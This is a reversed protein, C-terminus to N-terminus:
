MGGQEGRGCVTSRLRCNGQVTIKFILRAYASKAGTAFSTDVYSGVSSSVAAAAHTATADEVWNRNDNSRQVFIALTPVSASPNETVAHVVMSEASGLLANYQPDSYYDTGSFVNQDFVVQNFMRM